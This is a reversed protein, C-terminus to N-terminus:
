PLTQPDLIENVLSETRRCFDEAGCPADLRSLHDRLVVRIPHYSLPHTVRAHRMETHYLNDEAQPGGIARWSPTSLGADFIAQQGAPGVTERVFAAALEVNRCARGLGLGESIMWTVRKEGRPMPSVRVWDPLPGGLLSPLTGGFPLMAARGEAFARAMDRYRATLIYPRLGSFVRAAHRAAAHDLDWPGHRTPGLEGGYSWVMAAFLRETEALAMGAQGRDLRHLARAAEILDQWTWAADPPSVGAEEFLNPNYHLVAASCVLPLALLGGEHRFIDLAEPRFNELSLEGFRELVPAVPRQLPAAYMPVQHGLVLRVDGRSLALAQSQFQFGPCTEQLSQIARQESGAYRANLSPVVRLTRLATVRETVFTGRGAARRVLGEAVLASVCLRVLSRSVGFERSLAWESLREGPAASIVRGRLRDSVVSQMPASADALSTGAM